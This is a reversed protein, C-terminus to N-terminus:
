LGPMECLDSGRPRVRPATASESRVPCRSAFHREERAAPAPVPVPSWGEDDAREGALAMSVSGTDSNARDCMASARGV